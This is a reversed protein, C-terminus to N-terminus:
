FYKLSFSVETCINHPFHLGQKRDLFDLIHHFYDPNKNVYYSKRDHNSGEYKLIDKITEGSNSCLKQIFPSDEEFKLLIDQGIELITGRLNLSITRLTHEVENPEM